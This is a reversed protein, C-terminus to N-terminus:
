RWGGPAAPWSARPCPSGGSRAGAGSAGPSCGAGRAARPGARAAPGLGGRAPRAARHGARAAPAARARTDRGRALDLALLGPHGFREALARSPLAALEGLTRIGLQELIEPLAQLEPRTRLLSSRCRPSSSARPGSRWWSRGPLASRGAGRRRPRARLAAGRARAFRSPAAGFRAGAGLARRAAALVGDLRGGHIGELPGAEFFAVGSRDSEVAAGIGELRDLVHGWLSRSGEPDPPVLRLAPVARSRRAWGCGASSGSPRPRRRCRGWWRSAGRRRRWRPPSPSSRGGTGWLPWSSSAPTSFASRGDVRVCTRM